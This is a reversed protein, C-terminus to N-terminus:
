LKELMIGGRTSLFERFENYDDDSAPIIAQVGLQQLINRGMSDKRNISEFTKVIKKEMTRDIDNRLAFPMRPIELSTDIIKLNHRINHFDAKNLFSLKIIGADYKKNLVSYIITDIKKLFTFSVDEAIGMKQLKIELFQYCAFSEPIAAAVRRGKLQRLSSISSDKHVIVGGRISPIGKAIAHYKGQQTAMLYGRNSIYILDYVGESVRDLFTYLDPATVLKVHRGTENELKEALPSFNKIISKPSQDPMVGFLLSNSHASSQKAPFALLLAIFVARIFFLVKKEM